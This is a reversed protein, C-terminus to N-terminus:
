PRRLRRAYRPFGQGRRAGHDFPLDIASQLVRRNAARAREFGSRGRTADARPEPPREPFSGSARITASLSGRAITSRRM